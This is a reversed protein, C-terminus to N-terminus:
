QDAQNKLRQIYAAIASDPIFRRRGIKVSKLEGSSLLGFLRTRGLNGLKNQTEEICNLRDPPVVM